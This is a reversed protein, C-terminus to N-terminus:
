GRLDTDCSADPSFLFRRQWRRPTRVRSPPRRPCGGSGAHRVVRLLASPPKSYYPSCARGRRGGGGCPRRADVRLTLLPVHTTFIFYYRSSSFTLCSPSSSPAISSVNSDDGGDHSCPERVHPCYLQGKPVEAAPNKKKPPPPTIANSPHLTSSCSLM